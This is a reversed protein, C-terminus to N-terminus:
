TDDDLGIEFRADAAQENPRVLEIEENSRAPPVRYYGDAKHHVCCLVVIVMGLVMGLFMTGMIMQSGRVAGIDYYVTAVFQDFNSKTVGTPSSFNWLPASENIFAGVTNNNNSM